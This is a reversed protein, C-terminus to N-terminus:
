FASVYWCEGQNTRGSRRAISSTRQSCRPTLKKDGKAKFGAETITIPRRGINAVRYTVWTTKSGESTQQLDVDVWVNIKPRDNRYRVIECVALVTSLLAGWVATITVIVDTSM